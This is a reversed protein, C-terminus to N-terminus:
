STAASAQPAIRRRMAVVIPLLLWIATVPYVVDFWYPGAKVSAIAIVIIGVTAAACLAVLRRLRVGNVCWVTLWYCFVVLVAVGLWWSHREFYHRQRLSHVVYAHVVAGPKRGFPTNFSDQESEEGAIVFRNRLRRRASPDGQLAALSVVQPDTAPAIFRVLGDPPVRVSAGEPLARAVALSLAPRDQDNRFFMPTSRTVLDFDLVGALHRERDSTMCGTLTDPPSIETIGGGTREFGFGIFVHFKEPTATIVHCLLGDLPSPEEFYMDLAVGRAGAAASLAILDVIQKRGDTLTAAPPLLVVIVEERDPKKDVIKYRWDGWSVPTLWRESAPTGFATVDRRIDLIASRDAVVFVLIYTGLFLFVRRNLRAGEFAVIRAHLMWAAVGIPVLFWIAKWPDSFLRGSVADNLKAIATLPVGLILADLLKERAKSWANEPPPAPDTM